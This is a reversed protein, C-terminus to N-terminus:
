RDVATRARSESRREEVLALYKRIGSIEYEKRVRESTVSASILECVDGSFVAPDVKLATHCHGILYQLAIRLDILFVQANHASAVASKHCVPHDSVGCSERRGAGLSTDGVPYGLAHGGIDAIVEIHVLDLRIRPVARFLHPLM